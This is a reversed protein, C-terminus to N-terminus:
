SGGGDGYASPDTPTKGSRDHVYVWDGEHAWNFLWHADGITLNVCGHSQAYGLRARWYAGHLARAKDFYMTWPVNELYYFESTGREGSMTELEKKQYIQFLGPRTWLPELGSAMVTAFVMQQNDYVAVTQQELDVDIWRGNTVGEPPTTNPVVSAVQRGEVWQDPGILAWNTGEINQISFVQVVDYLGLVSSTMSGPLYNPQNYIPLNPELIFGFKNRPTSHLEIGPQYSPLSVTSGDGPMWAGSPLQFYTGRKTDHRTSYVVYIISGPSIITQVGQKEQAAELSGYFGTGTLPDVRYYFYPLSRLEPDAQNADLAQIPLTMGLQAMSTLYQSPGLPVCDAPPQLYIDPPCVVAGSNDEPSIEAAAGILQAPFMSSIVGLIVAFRIINKM